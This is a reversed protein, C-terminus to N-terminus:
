VPKELLKDHENKWKRELLLRFHSSLFFFHLIIANFIEGKRPLFSGCPIRANLSSYRGYLAFLLFSEFNVLLPIGIIM